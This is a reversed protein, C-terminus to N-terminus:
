LNILRKQIILILYFIKKLQKINNLKELNKEFSEYTEFNAICLKKEMSKDITEMNDMNFEEMISKNIKGKMANLALEYQLSIKHQTDFKLKNEDSDIFRNIKNNM